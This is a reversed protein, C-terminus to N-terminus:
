PELDGSRQGAEENHALVLTIIEQLRPDPPLLRKTFWTYLDQDEEALLAEYSFLMADDLDSLRALAFPVLLLDLELMGRRSHWYLRKRDAESFKSTPDM